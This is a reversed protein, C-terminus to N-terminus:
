KQKANVIQEADKTIKNLADWYDQRDMDCRASWKILRILLEDQQEILSACDEARKAWSHKVYGETTRRLWKVLDQTKHHLLTQKKTM